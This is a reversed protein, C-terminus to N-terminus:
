GTSRATSSRTSARSPSVVPAVYAQWDGDGPRVRHALRGLCRRPRRPHRDRRLRELGARQRDRLRHPPRPSTEDPAVTLVTGTLDVLKPMSTDDLTVTFRGGSVSGDLNDTTNKVPLATGGSGRVAKWVTGTWYRLFLNAETSGVVTSPYYFKAALSDDADAGTVQLDVFGGDNFITGSAPNSGYVAATVTVISGGANTVTGAVGASGPTVPLVAATASGGAATTDTEAAGVLPSAIIITRAPTEQGDPNVVSVQATGILEPLDLDSAPITATLQGPGDFTTPRQSGNWLVLSGAVFHAGSIVLATEPGDALLRSPVISTLRPAPVVFTQAEFAGIDCRETGDGDGDKVRPLGRQDTEGICQGPVTPGSFPQGADLARSGPLVAHTETPGGNDALPGLVDTLVSTADIATTAAHVTPCGQDRGVLNHGRDDLFAVALAYCDQQDRSTNGAVISGAFNLGGDEVYLGGAYNRAANDVITSLSIHVSQSSWLGGGRGDAGMASNGSVTSSTIAATGSNALGGGGDADNRSLTSRHFLLTVHRGNAIGGGSLRAENRDVTSRLVDISTVRDAVGSTAMGGGATGSNSIISSDSVTTRTGTWVGGGDGLLARNGSVTSDTISLDNRGGTDWGSFIGGGNYTSARNDSVLSGARVTVAGGFSWVGAGGAARNGTVESDDLTLVGRFTYAGGGWTADNDRIFSSTVTSDGETFLAGGDVARNRQLRSGDSMTLTAARGVDVGGGRSAIGNVENELIDSDSVKLDTADGYWGGALVGGGSTVLWGAAPDAGDVVNREVRTRLLETTGGFAAIAGGGQNTGSRAAPTAVNGSLLSDNIKLTGGREPARDPHLGNAIGGGNGATARNGTVDVFWLEAKSSAGRMAIGGGDTGAVNGAIKAGSYVWLEGANGIGGGDLAARNGDTSSDTAGVVGGEITAWGNIGLGGHRKADNGSVTTRVLGLGGGSRVEIGGGNEEARNGRLAAGNLTGSGITSDAVTAFGSNGIGGGYRASNGGVGTSNLILRPYSDGSSDTSIGGGFVVATNDRVTSNDITVIGGHLSVGGGAYDTARNEEVMLGRATVTGGALAGAGNALGGGSLGANGRFTTETITLNGRNFIGGGDGHWADNNAITAGDITLPRGKSGGDGNAIGGGGGHVSYHGNAGNRTISGGTITVPEAAGDAGGILIGGGPGQTSNDDLATATLTTEGLTFVGGGGVFAFNRTLSSSTVALRGGFSAIGGGRASGGNEDIASDTVSVTGPTLGGTGNSIASGSLASNETLRSAAVSATGANLIAGGDGRPARNGTLFVNHLDVRSGALAAIGGGGGEVNWRGNSFNDSVDGGRMVFSAAPRAELLVGGGAGEARNESITTDTVTIGGWSTIGGGGGTDATNSTITSGQLTLHGTGQFLNGIGGGVWATNRRVTSNALTLVGRNDIGGMGVTAENDEVLVDTLTGRFMNVLGGGDVARNGRLSGRTMTLPSITLIGGGFTGSAVNETVATGDLILAGGRSTIGGGDSTATNGTVVSNRLTVTGGSFNGSAFVSGNAIGGGEGATSNEIRSDDLTLKATAGLVLVAGGRGTRGNGLTVQRLTLDGPAPVHFIRFRTTDPAERRISAHRGEITIPTTVAPLGSAGLVDTEYVATLEYTEEDELYITDPGSGAACEGTGPGSAADTNAAIVAEPLTCLGDSADIRFEDSNVHIGPTQLVLRDQDDEGPVENAPTSDPDRQQSAVIEATIETSTPEPLRLVLLLSRSGGSPVSGAFWVGTADDYGPGASVLELAAPLHVRASVRTADDPGANRITATVTFQSGPDPRTTDASLELSLDSHEIVGEEYAGIDCGPGFPRRVGRQDSGNVPQALCVAEDAADIAVSGSRLAHTQTPGDNDALPHLLTAFVQAPDIAHDAATAACGTGQGLVNHGSSSFTGGMTAVDCDALAPNGASTNGALISNKATLTTGINTTVGGGGAITATNGAITSNTVALNRLAWIGAAGPFIGGGNSVNGSVTSNVLSAAAGSLALVLGGGIAESDNASITSSRIDVAGFSYLGGGIFASNGHVTSDIATLDGTAYMGGGGNGARNGTVAAEHLDVTGGAFDPSGNAIGGGYGGTAVNGSITTGAIKVLVPGAVLLGGAGRSATNDRISGGVLTAPSTTAVGGGDQAGVNGVVHSNELRLPGPTESYIGGGRGITSEVFRNGSITTGVVTASARRNAIAAGYTHARNDELVANRVILTGGDFEGVPGAGNAIAGGSRAHNRRIAGGDVTVTGDEENFIGGGDALPSKNDEITVGTLTILGRFM